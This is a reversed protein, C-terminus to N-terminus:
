PNCAVGGSNVVLVTSQLLEIFFGFRLTKPLPIPVTILAQFNVTCM